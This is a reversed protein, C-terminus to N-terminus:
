VGCGSRPTGLFPNRANASYSLAEFPPFPSPKIVFGREACYQPPSLFLAANANPEAQWLHRKANSIFGQDLKTAAFKLHSQALALERLACRVAGNREAQEAVKSLGEIQGRLKPAQACAEVMVFVALSALVLARFAPNM